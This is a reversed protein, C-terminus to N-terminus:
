PGPASGLSQLTLTEPDLEYNGAAVLDNPFACIVSNDPGWIVVLNPPGCQTQQLGYNALLQAGPSSAAVEYSPYIVRTQYDAISGYVIIGSLAGLAFPGWFGGGWYIPAPYWIVGRNWCWTCWHRPNRVVPGHWDHYPGSPYPARLVPQPLRVPRQVPAPPQAVPQRPVVRPMVPAPRAPVPRPNVDHPFNFGGPNQPPTVSRPPTIVRQPAPARQPAPVRPPPVTRTQPLATLPTAAIAAIALMCRLLPKV